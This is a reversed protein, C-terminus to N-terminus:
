IRIEHSSGGLPRDPVLSIHCHFHVHCYEDTSLPTKVLARFGFPYDVDTNQIFRKLSCGVVYQVRM